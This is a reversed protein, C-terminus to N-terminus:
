LAPEGVTCEREVRWATGLETHWSGRSERGDFSRHAMVPKRFESMAVMRPKCPCNDAAKHPKRDGNPILHLM